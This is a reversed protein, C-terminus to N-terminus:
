AQQVRDSAAPTGHKEWLRLTLLGAAMALLGEATKVLHGPLSDSAFFTMGFSALLRSMEFFAILALALAADRRSLREAGWLLILLIAPLALAAYDTGNKYFWFVSAVFAPVYSLARAEPTDGPVTRRVRLGLLVAYAMGALASLLLVLLRPVGLFALGSFLGLYQGDSAVGANLAERVLAAPGTGTLLSMAAWGAVSLAAGTLLTKYKRNLLFALCIVASVQPKTMSLGILLGALIPHADVLLVATVLLCAIVGGANGFHLSYWMSFHAAPALAAAALTLRDTRGRLARLLTWATVLAAAPHLCWIYRSAAQLPLFGAYFVNSPVAAWPMTSFGAPIAGIEPLAAPGGILPLPDVGRLTYACLAWHGRLDYAIYGGLYLYAAASAAACLLLLILPWAPRRGELRNNM